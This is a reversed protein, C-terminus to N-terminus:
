PSLHQQTESNEPVSRSPPRRCSCRYGIRHPLGCHGAAPWMLGPHLRGHRPRRPPVADGHRPKVRNVFQYTNEHVPRAIPVARHRLTDSMELNLCIVAKHHRAFSHHQLKEPVFSSMPASRRQAARPPAAKPERPRPFPKFSGALGAFHTSFRSVRTLCGRSM